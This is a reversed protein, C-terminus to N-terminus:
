ILAGTSAMQEISGWRVQWAVQLGLALTTAGVFMWAPRFRRDRIAGARHLDSGCEPCRVRCLGDVPYRCARCRPAVPSSTGSMWALICLSITSLLLVVLM